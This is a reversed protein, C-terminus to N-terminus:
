EYRFKSAGFQVIDGPVLVQMSVRMGNVFTGNASGNDYVVLDGGENSIRAHNRSITHDAALVIDRGPERGLAINQGTLLFVEGTYPGEIGVLRPMDSGGGPVAGVRGYGAASYGGYQTGPMGPSYGGVGAVGQGIGAVPGPATGVYSGSGAAPVAGVASGPVTCLCAGSADKPAGCFPCLHEPMPVGGPVTAPKTRPADVAPRAIKSATAKERFLIRQAGIQIMDGDRLLLEEGPPVRQGNVVTGMPTNADMLYHRNGEARIAAHQVGIAPDGYLPVDCREDRGLINVPKSLIFDKGENRGALVKVWAQKLLEEVIGIFLGTLAGIATFGVLRSPGGVDRIGPGSVSDEVPHVGVALLNFLFGGVFGGLFGGVAGQWIRKLSRTSIASGAGLGVGLLAWGFTRAIVQQIFSFLGPHELENAGGLANYIANGASLGIGGFLIGCLAGILVGRGLKRWNGEVIGDVAGLCLGIMGGVCIALKRSMEASIERPLSHFQFQLQALENYNIISEQLLWGLFGGL